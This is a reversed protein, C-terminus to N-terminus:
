RCPEKIPKGYHQPQHNQYGRVKPEYEKDKKIRQRKQEQLELERDREFADRLQQRIKSLEEPSLGDIGENLTDNLLQGM